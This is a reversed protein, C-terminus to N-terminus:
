RLNGIIAEVSDAIMGDAIIQSENYIQNEQDSDTSKAQKPLLFPPVFDKTKQYKDKLYYLLPTPFGKLALHDNKIYKVKEVTMQNPDLAGGKSSYLNVTVLTKLVTDGLTELTENNNCRDIARANLAKFLLHDKIFGFNMLLKFERIQAMREIQILTPPIRLAKDLDELKFPQRKLSNSFTL